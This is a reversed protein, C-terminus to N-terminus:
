KNEKILRSVAINIRLADVLENPIASHLVGISKAILNRVYFDCLEDRRRQYYYRLGEKRKRYSKALSERRLDPNSKVWKESYERCKEPNNAKWKKCAENYCSKCQSERGSKNKKNL